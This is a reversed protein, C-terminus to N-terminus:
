MKKIKESIDNFLIAILRDFEFEIGLVNSIKVSSSLYKKGNNYM